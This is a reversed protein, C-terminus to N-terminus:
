SARAKQVMRRAMTATISWRGGKGPASNPYMDRLWGRLTKEDVNLIYALYGPTVIADM